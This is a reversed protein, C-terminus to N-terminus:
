TRNLAASTNSSADIGGEIYCVSSAAYLPSVKRFLQHHIGDLLNSGQYTNRELLLIQAVVIMCALSCGTGSLQMQFPSHFSDGNILTTVLQSDTYPPPEPEGGITTDTPSASTPSVLTASSSPSVSAQSYQLSMRIILMPANLSLFLTSVWGGGWNSKRGAGM